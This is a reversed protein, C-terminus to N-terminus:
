RRVVAAFAEGLPRWAAELRPEAEKARLNIAAVDHGRATLAGATSETWGIFIEATAEPHFQVAWAAPGLRFAQHPYMEGTALPAAGEPLGTVVDQHYTLAPAAPGVRSFVPDGAAAPLPTIPALGVELGRHGREVRGGCALAMLQAGLCIGLLPVQDAVTRAILGRTAPLWPYGDDDWASAEGGLVILGGPVGEPVEEGAYPRVFECELGAGALWGAFFGLGADAEHEIVTVRM